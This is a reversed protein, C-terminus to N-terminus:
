GIIIKEELYDIKETEDQYWNKNFMLIFTLPGVRGILMIIALVIKSGMSLLLTLNITLGVNGFASIVEFLSVELSKNDFILLLFTGVIVLTGSLVVLIFARWVSKENILRKNTIVRKGRAFGLVKKILIYLTTTKVGGGTSSPSAGIFMLMMVILLTASPLLGLNITTFGATRSTVSLFFSELWSISSTLKFIIPAIIWLILNVKIVIKSHVSLKKYSRQKFIDFLVIFGLGGLMILLATNINLLINNHYNILSSNGLIDFGANNFSSISHFISYLIADGLKHNPIFVILNILAGIFEITLSTLVIKKVLKVLGKLSNQNLSEKILFRDKIGIKLGLLLMVFVSITIISLGGLQVLLILVIKGFLTLSESLNSLPSLGTITVASTSLFYADLFSIDNNTQSIPLYLLITGILILLVFSLVIILYPSKQKM